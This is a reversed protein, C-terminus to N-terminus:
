RHTVSMVGAPRSATDLWIEGGGAKLVIIDVYGRFRSIRYIFPRTSSQRAPLCIFTTKYIGWQPLTLQYVLLRYDDIVNATPSEM